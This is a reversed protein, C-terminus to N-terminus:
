NNHVSIYDCVRRVIKPISKNKKVPEDDPTLDPPEIVFMPLGSRSKVIEYDTKKEKKKNWDTFSIM